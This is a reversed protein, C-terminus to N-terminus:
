PDTQRSPPIIKLWPIPAMGHGHDQHLAAELERWVSREDDFSVCDVVFKYVSPKGRLYGPVWGTGIFVEIDEGESAAKLPVMTGDKKRAPQDETLQHTLGDKTCFYLVVPPSPITKPTM